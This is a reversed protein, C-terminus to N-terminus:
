LEGRRMGTHIALVVLPRLSARPGTLASLLRPEEEDSLYRNRENDERFRKVKQCPNHITLGQDIALSFIKSLLELERNVTSPARETGRVTKSLRRDRKYKEILIPLIEDMTKNGMAKILPRSRFKDHVWTRKNAKAWPLFTEAIFDRLKPADVSKGYIGEYVSDRITVEAREAQAKVRAEPIAGRYRKGDVWFDYQWKNGRKFVSM